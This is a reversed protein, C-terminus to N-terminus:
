EKRGYIVEAPDPGQTTPQIDMATIQIDVDQTRKGGQRERMSVGSVYAEALILVKTGVAPLAGGMGLKALAEDGLCLQTGYPYRPGEPETGSTPCCAYEDRAEEPTLQMSKLAM